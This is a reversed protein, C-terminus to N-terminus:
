INKRHVFHVDVEVIHKPLYQPVLQPHISAEQNERKLGVPASLKNGNAEHIIIEQSIEPHRHTYGIHDKQVGTTFQYVREMKDQIANWVTIRLLRQM